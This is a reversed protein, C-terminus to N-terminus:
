VSILELLLYSWLLSIVRSTIPLSSFMITQRTGFPYCLHVLCLYKLLCNWLKPQLFFFTRDGTPRRSVKLPLVYLSSEWSVPLKIYSFGMLFIVQRKNKHRSLLSLNSSDRDNIQCIYIRARIELVGFSVKPRYYGKCYTQWTGLKLMTPTDINSFSQPVTAHM